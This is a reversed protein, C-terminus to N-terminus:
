ASEFSYSTPTKYILMSNTPDRNWKEKWHFQDVSAWVKPHVHEKRGKQACIENSIVPAFENPLQHHLLVNSMSTPTQLDRHKKPTKMVLHVESIRIKGSTRKKYIHPSHLYPIKM